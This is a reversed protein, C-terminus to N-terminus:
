NRRTRAGAAAKQVWASAPPAAMREEMQQLRLALLADEELQTRAPAQTELPVAAPPAGWVSGGPSAAPRAPAPKAAKPSAKATATPSPTAKPSRAPTVAARTPSAAPVTRAKANAQPSAAKSHPLPNMAKAQAKSQPLPNVPKSQPLPNVPKSQPLPNVGVEAKNKKRRRRKKKADDGNQFGDDSEIDSRQEAAEEEASRGTTSQPGSHLGSPPAKPAAAPSPSRAPAPAAPAASTPSSAPTRAVGGTPSATPTPGAARKPVSKSPSATGWASAKAAAAAAKAAWVSPGARQNEMEQLQLALRADEEIQRLAEAEDEEDAPGADEAPEDEEEQEQEAEEVEEPEAQRPPSVPAAVPAPPAPPDVPAPVTPTAASLATDLFAQAKEPAEKPPPAAPTSALYPDWAPAAPPAAYSAEWGPSPVSPSSHGWPEAGPSALGSAWAGALGSDESVGPSVGSRASPSFPLHQQGWDSVAPPPSRAGDFPPVRFQASQEAEALLREGFDGGFGDSSGLYGPSEMPAEAPPSTEPYTPGSDDEGPSAVPPESTAAAPTALIEDLTQPAVEVPPVLLAESGGEAAGETSAGGWEVVEALSQPAAGMPPPPMHADDEKAAPPAVDRDEGASERRDKWPPLGPSSARVAAPGSETKHSVKKTEKIPRKQVAVRRSRDEDGAGFMEMMRQTASTMALVDDPVGDDGLFAPRCGLLTPRAYLKDM